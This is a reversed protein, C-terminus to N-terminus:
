SKVQDEDLMTPASSGNRREQKELRSLAPIFIRVFNRFVSIETDSLLYMKGSFMRDGDFFEDMAHLDFLHWEIALNEYEHVFAARGKEVSKKDKQNIYGFSHAYINRVQVFLDWVRILFSRPLKFDEDLLTILSPNDRLAKGVFSTVNENKVVEKLYSETISFLYMFEFINILGKIVQRWNDASTSEKIANLDLKVDKDHYGDIALGGYLLVDGHRQATSAFNEAIQGLFDLIDMSYLIDDRESNSSCSRAKRQYEDVQEIIPRSFEEIYSTLYGLLLGNSLQCLNFATSYGLYWDAHAESYGEITPIHMSLM